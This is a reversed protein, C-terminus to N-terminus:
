GIKQKPLVNRSNWIRELTKYALGLEPFAAGVIDCASGRHARAYGGGKPEPRGSHKRGKKAHRTPALGFREITWSVADVIAADRSQLTPDPSPGRKGRSPKCARGNVRDSIWKRLTDRDDDWRWARRDCREIWDKWPTSGVALHELAIIQLTDWHRPSRESEEILAEIAIEGRYYAAVLLGPRNSMAHLKQIAATRDDETAALLPGFRLQVQEVIENAKVENM